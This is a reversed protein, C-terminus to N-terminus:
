ELLEHYGGNGTDDSANKRYFLYSEIDRRIGSGAKKNEEPLCDYIAKALITITTLRQQGDIIIAENAFSCHEAQKLILSGLFPVTDVNEFTCLLEDWNDENWVYHRQFFPITLRKGEGLFRLSKAEAKM